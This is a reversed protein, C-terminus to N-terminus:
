CSIYLFYSFMNLKKYSNHFDYVSNPGLLFHHSDPNPISFEKFFTVLTHTELKM